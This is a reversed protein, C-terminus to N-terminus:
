REVEQVETEGEREIVFTRGRSQAMAWPQQDTRSWQRWALAVGAAAEVAGLLRMWGPHPVCAEICRDIPEAWGRWLLLHRKPDIMALTGDGIMLMAMTETAQNALAKSDM